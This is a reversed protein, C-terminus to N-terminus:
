FRLERDIVMEVTTGRPLTIDKRKSMVSGLGVAAGALGGIGAGAGAHGAAAGALGGVSAGIGGGMAITGVERRTDTDGSLKGEKGGEPRARLDFTKGSPLTLTDFRIYLERKGGKAPKNETITGSVDSGRPIVVRDNAAVPVATRLYVHDGDRSKGTNLPSLLELLVRTGAPVIREAPAPPAAEPRPRLIQPRTPTSPPPPAPAVFTDEVRSGARRYVLRGDTEGRLRVVHREITLTARNASLEWRDMVTYNEPGSVLTNVLLAAGEWKVASNRQEAGARYRGNGGDLPYTWSVDAGGIATQCRISGEDQVVTLFPESEAGLARWDSRAEVLIWSGSFDRDAEIAFLPTVVSWLVLIGTIATRV